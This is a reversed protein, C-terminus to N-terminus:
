SAEAADLEARLAAVQESVNTPDPYAPYDVIGSSNGSSSDVYILTHSQLQGAQTVEQTWTAATVGPFGFLEEFLTALQGAFQAGAQATYVQTDLPFEFYVGHPKTTVSSVMVPRVTSGGIFAVDPRVGNITYNAAM